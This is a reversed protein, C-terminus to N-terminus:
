KAVESELEKDDVGVYGHKQIYDWDASVYGLKEPPIPLYQYLLQDCDMCFVGCPVCAMTDFTRNHECPLLDSPFAFNFELQSAQTGTLHKM